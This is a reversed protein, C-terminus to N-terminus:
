SEHIIGRMGQIASDIVRKECWAPCDELAESKPIGEATAVLMAATRVGLCSGVVFLVASDTDTCVAGGAIYAEWANQISVGVPLSVFNFPAYYSARTICVGIHAPISCAHAANELVMVLDLDPVAPFEPTQYHATLGEMRVAGNPIVIDGQRVAAVTALCTGVRVFTSAGLQRLEEMAIATSPGGIGTSCVSVRKGDLFGTFTHYERHYAKEEAQELRAAIAESREPSGPLFVYQAVDGDVLGVHMMRKM